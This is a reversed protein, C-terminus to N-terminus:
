HGNPNLKREIEDCTRRVTEYDHIERGAISSMYKLVADGGLPANADFTGAEIDRAIQKELNPCNASIYGRM